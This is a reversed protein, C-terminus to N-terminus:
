PEEGLARAAPLWPEGLCGPSVSLDVGPVPGGWFWYDHYVWNDPNAYIALTERMGM